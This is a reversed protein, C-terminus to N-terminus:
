ALAVQAGRSEGRAVGEEVLEKLKVQAVRGGGSKVKFLCLYIFDGCTSLM